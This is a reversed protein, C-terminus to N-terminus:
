CADSTEEPLEERVNLRASYKEGSLLPGSLPRQQVVNKPVSWAVRECPDGVAAIWDDREEEADAHSHCIFHSRSFTALQVLMSSRNFAIADCM